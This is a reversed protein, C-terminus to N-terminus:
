FPIEDHDDEASSYSEIKEHSSSDNSIAMNDNGLKSDLIKISDGYGQISIETISKEVQTQQDKYKRYKISGEIYVKGGKKLYKEIVSSVLKDNFVVVRHWQTEQQKEGNKVWSETTAVNFTAFKTGSQTTRIEPDAGLNGVLIVKNIM